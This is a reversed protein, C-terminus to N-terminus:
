GVDSAEDWDSDELSSWDDSESPLGRGSRPRRRQRQRQFRDSLDEHDDEEDEDDFGNMEFEDFDDDSEYSDDFRETRQKDQHKRKYGMLFVGLRPQLSAPLSRPFLAKSLSGGGILGSWGPGRSPTVRSGCLDCSM